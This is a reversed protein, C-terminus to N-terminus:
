NTHVIVREGDTKKPARQLETIKRETETLVSDTAHSLHWRDGNPGPRVYVIFQKDTVRAPNDHITSFGPEDPSAALALEDGRPAGVMARDVHALLRYTVRQQPDTDTRLTQVTVLAIVDAAGVRESLDRDWDDRWRGELGELSAVFDVGNDFARQQSETLPAVVPRSAGGCATAMFLACVLSFRRM